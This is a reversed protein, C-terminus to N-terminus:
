FQFYIFQQVEDGSLLYSAAVLTFWFMLQVDRPWTAEFMDDAHRARWIQMAVLPGCFLAVALGYLAPQISGGFSPLTLSGFAGTLMELGPVLHAPRLDALTAAYATLQSLDQCRFVIWTLTILHFVLIARLWAPLKGIITGIATPELAREACIWVGHLTGWIIFNWGAGHWLGSITFVILINRYTTAVGARSGGLPIYIYDNFWRYLTMHWRQWFQRVSTAMYPLNFNLSLNIGMTKAIGRAMDTYGSFDCYIQFSFAYAAFLLTLPDYAAPDAFVPDVFLAMNDAIVLKKFLGMCFLRAGHHMNVWSFEQPAKIQILLDGAREIPGAVLQPFFAVFAAFNVISREAKQRGYYVDIVYGLTQFTYFSIGAPLIVNLLLTNEASIGFLAAFSTSFFDFYKFVGLMGLNAAISVWLWRRAGQTRPGAREVRHSVLYDVCTSILLLSLFRWDWAGYFIYSFLTILLPRRQPTLAWYAAFFVSFFLVFRAEFFLM